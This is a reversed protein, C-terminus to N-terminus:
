HRKRASTCPNVCSKCMGSRTRSRSGYWPRSRPTRASYRGGCGHKQFSRILSPTYPNPGVPSLHSPTTTTSSNFHVMNHFPSPHHLDLTTAAAGCLLSGGCMEEKRREPRTEEAGDELPSISPRVCMSSAASVTSAAVVAMARASDAEAVAVVVM